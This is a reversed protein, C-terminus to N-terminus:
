TVECINTLHEIPLPTCTTARCDAYDSRLQDARRMLLFAAFCITIQCWAVARLGSWSWCLKRYESLNGDAAQRLRYSRLRRARYALLCPLSTRAPAVSLGQVVGPSVLGPCACVVHSVHPLSLRWTGSLLVRKCTGSRISDCYVPGAPQCAM